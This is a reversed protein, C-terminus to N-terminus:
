SEVEALLASLSRTLLETRDPGVIAVQMIAGQMLALYAPATQEAKAHATEEDLGRARLYYSTLYASFYGILEGFISSAIEGFEENHAAEGWVQLVVSAFPNDKVLSNFLSPFVEQPPLVAGAAAYDELMVVLQGMVRRGVDTMLEAKSSYYVYVAGASLDAAKVIDAMSAGSFGKRTFCAIAADRIRSRMADRHEGTVKPM